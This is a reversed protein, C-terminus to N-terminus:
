GRFHVFRSPSKQWNCLSDEMVQMGVNLQDDLERLWADLDKVALPADYHGGFLLRAGRLPGTAGVLYASGPSIPALDLRGILALFDFKGLRGFQTVHMSNYFCDFIAHPHNGGTRVLKQVLEGHSRAPGVWTIYSEIVAGTGQSGAARLSIYKRHNGFGGGIAHENDRLWDRFAGPNMSTREWTWTGSGLGSYVDRLRRWGHKQHKGFHTALFILWFAEDTRGERAHFIAAREPDFMASAPNARDPNIDRTRLIATYDLRRLSAMMQMGLTARAAWDEVGPLPRVHASFEALSSDLRAAM